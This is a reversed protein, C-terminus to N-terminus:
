GPTKYEDVSFWEALDITSQAPTWRESRFNIAPIVIQYRAKLPTAFETQPLMFDFYGSQDSLIRTVNFGFTQGEIVITSRRLSIEMVIPKALTGPYGSLFGKIRIMNAPIFESNKENATKVSLSNIVPTATEDSLLIAVPSINFNEGFSFKSLNTNVTVLDNSSSVNGSSAVWASGNWWYLNGDVNIVYRISTAPFPTNSTVEISSVSDAQVSPFRVSAEAPYSRTRLQLYNLRIFADSSRTFRIRFFRYTNISDEYKISMERQSNGTYSDITAYTINDDSGQILFDVPLGAGDSNVFAISDLTKSDGNDILIDVQGTYSVQGSQFNMVGLTQWNSSDNILLNSVVASGSESTAQLSIAEELANVTTKLLSIENIDIQPFQIRKIDVERIRVKTTFGANIKWRLYSTTIPPSIEVVLSGSTVPNTPGRSHITTFTEGDNSVQLEFQTPYTSSDESVYSFESINQPIKFMWQVEQPYSNNSQWFTLSNNDFLYEVPEVVSTASLEQVDINEISTETYLQEAEGSVELLHYSTLNENIANIEFHIASTEVPKVFRHSITGSNTSGAVAIIVGSNADLIKYDVAYNDSNQYADFKKIIRPTDFSFTYVDGSGPSARYPEGSAVFNYVGGSGVVGSTLDGNVLHYYSTTGSVFPNICTIDDITTRVQVLSSDYILEDENDFIYTHLISM